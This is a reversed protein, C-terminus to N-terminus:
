CGVGLCCAAAIICCGGMGLTRAQSSDIPITIILAAVVLSRSLRRRM